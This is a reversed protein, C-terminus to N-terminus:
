RVKSLDVATKIGSITKAAPALSGLVGGIAPGALVGLAAPAAIRLVQSLISPKKTQQVRSVDRVGYDLRDIAYQPDLGQPIQGTQMYQAFLASNPNGALRQNQREM